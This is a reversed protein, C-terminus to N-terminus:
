DDYWRMADCIQKERAEDVQREEFKQEATATAVAAASAATASLGASRAFNCLSWFSGSFEMDYWYNVSICLREKKNCTQSVKHYWLAPLYLMDGEDLTVRMPRSLHSFPTPRLSPNDPDWTPFTTKTPPDDVEAELNITDRIGHADNYDYVEQPVDFRVYTADPLEQENVCAAEVPPLLVFHKQGLIQVFINEYNDKHLATTSLSNGIWMNVADPKKQLAIRAFPISEPVDRYLEEYEEPLNNNQTQAYYAGYMQSNGREKDREQDRIEALVNDLSETSDYHPRVFCLGVGPVDVPADANGHPTKAVGVIGGGMEGEALFKFNWKKCAPWDAAGGRVVFPRNRAVYRMFELPSPQEDLEEITQSNLEHYSTILEM